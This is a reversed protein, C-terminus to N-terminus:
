FLQNRAEDPLKEGGAAGDSSPAPYEQYFYESIGTGEAARLGTDANVPM